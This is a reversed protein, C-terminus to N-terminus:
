LIPALALGRFPMVKMVAKFKSSAYLVANNELVGLPSPFAAGLTGSSKRNRGQISSIM